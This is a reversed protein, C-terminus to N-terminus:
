DQVSNRKQMTLNRKDGGNVTKNPIISNLQVQCLYFYDCLFACRMASRYKYSLIVFLQTLKVSFISLAMVVM